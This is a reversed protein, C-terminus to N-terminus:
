LPKTQIDAFDRVHICGRCMKIKLAFADLDAHWLTMGDAHDATIFEIMPQRLFCTFRPNFNPFANSYFIDDRILIAYDNFSVM